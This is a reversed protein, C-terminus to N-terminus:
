RAPRFQAIQRLIAALEGNEDWLEGDEELLGCTIFRTRFIGKLWKSTPIRRVNVSFEITPVWAVMGQSALVPPPFADAMLLLAPIDFEREERFKIWGKQESRESLNGGIWGSCDPDLLVRTNKFVTYRPLQPMETCAQREAVRPAAAEYREISCSDTPAAFTGFARVKEKGKQLLSAEFRDFQKSAAMRTVSIQAAGPRCRGTFNATLIPAQSKSPDHQMAQALLAMLYGGNPIGNVLWHKSIVCEFGGSFSGSLELDQDFPHM